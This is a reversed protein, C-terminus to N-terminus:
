LNVSLFDLIIAVTPLLSCNTSILQFVVMAPRIVFYIQLYEGGNDSPIFCTYHCSLIPMWSFALFYCVLELVIAVWVKTKTCGAM